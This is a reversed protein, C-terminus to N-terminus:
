IEIISYIKLVLTNLDYLAKLIEIESLKRCSALLHALNDLTFISLRSYM